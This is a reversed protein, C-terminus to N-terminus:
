LPEVWFTGTINEEALSCSDDLLNVKVTNSRNVFEVDDYNNMRAWAFSFEYEGVDYNGFINPSGGIGARRHSGDDNFMDSYLSETVEGGAWYETEVSQGPQIDDFYLFGQRSLLGIDRPDDISAKTSDYDERNANAMSHNDDIFYYIRYGGTAYETTHMYRHSIPIQGINTLRITFIPTQCTHTINETHDLIEIELMPVKSSLFALVQEEDMKVVKDASIAILFGDWMGEVIVYDGSSMNQISELEKEDDIRNFYVTVETNDEIDNLYFYVGDGMGSIRGLVVLPDENNLDWLSSFSDLEELNYGGIRPSATSSDSKLLGFGKTFILTLILVLLLLLILIIKKHKEWVKKINDMINIKFNSV